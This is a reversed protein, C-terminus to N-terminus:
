FNLEMPDYASDRCWKKTLESAKLVNKWTKETMELEIKESNPLDYDIELRKLLDAEIFKSPDFTVTRSLTIFYRDIYGMELVTVVKNLIKDFYSKVTFDLEINSKFMGEISYGKAQYVLEM